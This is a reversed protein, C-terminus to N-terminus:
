AISVFGSRHLGVQLVQNKTLGYNHINVLDFVMGPFNISLGMCRGPVLIHPTFSIARAAVAPSVAIFVGGAGYNETGDSRYFSSAYCIWGPLWLRLQSLIESRHGHVEEVCLFHAQAALTRLIEGALQRAAIDSVCLGRANHQVVKFGANGM